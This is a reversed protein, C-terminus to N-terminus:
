GIRDADLRRFPEFLAEVEYPPIVSGTNVVVFEAAGTPATRTGTAVWGGAHPV